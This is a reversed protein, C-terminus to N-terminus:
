AGEYPDASPVWTGRLGSMPNCVLCPQIPRRRMTSAAMQATIYDLPNPHQPCSGRHLTDHEDDSAAQEITFRSERYAVDRRREQETVEAELRRIAERTQGLQHNLYLEVARARQLRVEPSEKM